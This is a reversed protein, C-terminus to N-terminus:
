RELSEVFACSLMPHNRVARPECHRTSVLDCLGHVRVRCRLELLDIPNPAVLNEGSRTRGRTQWTQPHYTNLMWCPMTSARAWRDRHAGPYWAHASAVRDLLSPFESSLLNGGSAPSQPVQRAVHVRCRATWLDSDANPNAHVYSAGEYTAPQQANRHTRHQAPAGAIRSLTLLPPTLVLPAAHHSIRARGAPTTM